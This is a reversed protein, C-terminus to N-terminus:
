LFFNCNLGSHHINSIRIYELTQKNFRNQARSQPYKIYIYPYNLRIIMKYHTYYVTSCGKGDVYM